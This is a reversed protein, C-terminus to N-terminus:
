PLFELPISCSSASIGRLFGLLQNKNQDYVTIYFVDEDWFYSNEEILINFSPWLTSDCYNLNNKDYLFVNLDQIVLERNIYISITQIDKDVFYTYPKKWYFTASVSFVCSGDGLVANKNYNIARDDDCGYEKQCSCLLFGMSIIALQIGSLGSKM